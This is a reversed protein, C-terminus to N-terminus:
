VEEKDASSAEVEVVGAEERGELEGRIITVDKSAEIGVRFKSATGRLFVLRIVEGSPTKILIDEDAKRTLVLM